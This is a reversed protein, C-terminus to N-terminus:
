PVNEFEERWCYPCCIDNDAFPRRWDDPLPRSLGGFVVSEGCRYCRAQRGSRGGNPQPSMADRVASKARRPVVFSPM